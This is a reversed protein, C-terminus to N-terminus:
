RVGHATLGKAWSEIADWDRFDGYIEKKTVKLQLRERWSLRQEVVAGRFFAVDRAGYTDLQARVKPSLEFGGGSALIVLPRLSLEARRTDLFRKAEPDLAGSYVPAAVIVADASDLWSAAGAPDEVVTEVSQTSRLVEAVREAIERTSGHHSSAVILTTM